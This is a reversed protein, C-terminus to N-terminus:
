PARDMDLTRIVKAPVGVAVSYAPIDRVVVAAAGIVSWEGVQIGQITASNIGFEVGEGFVCNGGLNVGPAATLYSKLISDHGITCTKNLLVHDGITVDVDVCVGPYVVTGRGLAVRRSIWAMPHVLTAVRDIGAAALRSAMVRKQQPSSFALVLQANPYRDLQELGGLVPHDSITAGHKSVSDDLFGVVRWNRGDSNIDHVIQDVMRGVSGCGYILIDRM